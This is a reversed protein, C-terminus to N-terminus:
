QNRSITQRIAANIPLSNVSVKLRRLIGTDTYLLIDSLGSSFLDISSCPTVKTVVSISLRVFLASILATTETSIFLSSCPFILESFIISLAFAFAPSINPLVDPMSEETTFLKEDPATTNIITSTMYPTVPALCATTM